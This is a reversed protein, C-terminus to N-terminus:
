LYEAQDWVGVGGVCCVGYNALPSCPLETQCSIFCVSLALHCQSGNGSQVGACVHARWGHIVIVVFSLPQPSVKRM